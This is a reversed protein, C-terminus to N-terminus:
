STVATARRRMAAGVLGFGAILMMWSQPEPVVNFSLDDLAFDNGGAITNGNVIRLALTTNQGNVYDGSIAIWIGVESLTLDVITEFGSGQDAQLSLQSFNPPAQNANCCLNAVFASFNYRYGANVNITQAWAISDFGAGNAIFYLGAADGTNDAFSAWAPHTLIADTDIAYLAQALAPGYNGPARYDYDSTFGTNGASFNGNTILNPGAAAASASLVLAAALVVSKMLRGKVQKNYIGFEICSDRWYLLV